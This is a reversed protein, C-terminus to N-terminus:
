VKLNPAHDLFEKDLTIAPTCFIADCDGVSALLENRPVPVTQAVTVDFNNAKLYDVLDGPMTMASYLKFKKLSSM